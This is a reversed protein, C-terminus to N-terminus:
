SFVEDVVEGDDVIKIPRGISSMNEHEPDIELSHCVTHLLDTVGVPRDAVEQGGSDTEGIVQGGNVGGGALAMNFARPYHDRGGRANVRPTRGFEGMWIVLTQELMGRQKLDGILQAFPQDMQQCLDRSRNFNDQHTDWNGHSIEVFTVGSEILRRALLCGQGFSSDGYAERVKDPERELDFANMSPSLVMRSSKDYLSHHDDVRGKGGADAYDEELRDLLRLRRRYRKEGTSLGTNEPPRDPNSMVFPDYQVGLFGGGSSGQSRNGIRVFGPLDEAPDGIQHTVFSGISPYKVSATPVYGTHMLYSARPHSGEKSNMSRIVCLDEMAQAVGPLNEAIQIGPVSTSIAKTEGGNAHDPKPSFTEFQSPGGKMWLLICARGRKRLDGAQVTLLDSWSLNGAIGAATLGRLWQRRSVVGRRGVLVDLHRVLPFNM